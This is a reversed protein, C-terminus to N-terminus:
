KLWNFYINSLVYYTVHKMSWTIFLIYSYIRRLVIATFIYLHGFYIHIYKDSINFTQFINDLHFM